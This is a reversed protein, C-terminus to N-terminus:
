QNTTKIKEEIARACGNYIMKQWTAVREWYERGKNPWLAFGVERWGDPEVTVARTASPNADLWARARDVQENIQNVLTEFATKMGLSHKKEIELKRNREYFMAVDDADQKTVGSMSIKDSQAKSISRTRFCSMLTKELDSPNEVYDFRNTVVASASKPKASQKKKDFFLSYIIHDGNVHTTTLRENIRYGSKDAQEIQQNVDNQLRTPASLAGVRIKVIM